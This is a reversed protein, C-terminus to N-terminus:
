KIPATTGKGATSEKPNGHIKPPSIKGKKRLTDNLM